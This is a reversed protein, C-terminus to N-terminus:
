KSTEITSYNQGLFRQVDLKKFYDISLFTLLSILIAMLCLTIILRRNTRKLHRIQEEPTLVRKSPTPKKVASDQRNPLKIVIDPKVPSNAMQALCKPCFAQNEEIERGCKMCNM